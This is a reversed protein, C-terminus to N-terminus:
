RLKFFHLVTVYALDEWKTVTLIVSSIDAKRVQYCINGTLVQGPRYTEKSTDGTLPDPIDACNDEFNIRKYVRHSASVFDMNLTVLDDTTKKATHTATINVLVYQRGARPPDNFQNQDHVITNANLTVSNVRISWGTSKPPVTKDVYSGAEYIPVTTRLPAPNAKTGPAPAGAAVGSVAATVIAAAVGLGVRSM